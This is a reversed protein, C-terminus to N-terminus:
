EDEQFKDAILALLAALAQDADPGSASIVVSTGISAGLTMLGMISRGSVTIDERTVRIESQFSAVTSVFKASARAHLGRKNVIEAIAKTESLGAM